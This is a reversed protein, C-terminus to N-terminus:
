EQKNSRIEELISGYFEDDKKPSFLIERRNADYFFFNETQVNRRMGPRLGMPNIMM